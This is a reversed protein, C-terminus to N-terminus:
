LIQETPQIKMIMFEYNSINITLLKGSLVEGYGTIIKIAENAMISGTIGSLVGWLGSDAPLPNKYESTDYPPNFASYKPGGNFNFVSVQGEFKYIAGHIMPKGHAACADDIAYRAPFSDTADVVIDFGSFIRAANSSDIKINIRETQVLDNLQEIRKAAIISKLKGIDDSGYLVQRQLNSEAVIDFEAIALKGVGAAALYQLVPCGLGGAGVVIVRSNKLKEQGSIGIEPLMIQKTYRRLERDSLITKSM